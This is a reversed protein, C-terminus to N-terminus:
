KKKGKPMNNPGMGKPHSAGAMMGGGPMMHEKMPMGKATAPAKAASKKAAM